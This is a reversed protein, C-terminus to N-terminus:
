ESCKNIADQFATDIPTGKFVQTILNEVQTRATSSGEFAPSTFYYDGQDVCVKTSTAQIDGQNLWTKYVENDNVSEIVPTYGSTISFQAQFEVNTTFYKVFLWSAIVKQPDSNNFICVDPGQQIVAPHTDKNEQPIKAIGVEFRGDQPQQYSAGASSGICMYCKQVEDSTFLGSTYSGYNAKTTMYGLDYWTKFKTVFAKADPNNFLYHNGTASTYPIDLQECMTIFLNAGSDYGLPICDPDIEKLKECVYEVSTFDNASKKFWHDPVQLKADDFKTKNYYMVESSKSFPLCYMKGDGFNRGEELYADVFDRYQDVTLGYEDHEMLNDLAVVSKASNYTAVHDPYCYAINVDNKGAALETKMQNRVDDYGGIFQPTVHINPYLEEFEPLYANFVDQLTKGMTTYFKINVDKDTDFGGEPVVFDVTTGGSSIPSTSNQSTESSVDVSAPNSSSPNSSDEKKDKCSTITGLLFAGVVTLLLSNIVSRKM